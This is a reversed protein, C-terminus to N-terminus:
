TDEVSASVMSMFLDANWVHLGDENSGLETSFYVGVIDLEPDVWLLVGGSGSHLFTSKSPLTEGYVRGKYVHNVSWGLGWSAEPFVKTLLKARLGPIQNRTMASVSAKSLLRRDGYTGRNLFMQGFVAADMATSFAGGSPSPREQMDPDNVEAYPGDEAHMVVRQRVDEPLSYFADKMGLPDFIRKRAFDDLSEGNIRRIIESLLHIGFSSYMMEKGPELALPVEMGIHLWRHITPHATDERPPLNLELKEKEKIYGFLAEDGDLGASHTMLQHVLVNEKHDGQFEPIYEQVPRNMGLLGEEVLTMAAAVTLVKSISALPFITDLALSGQLDDKSRRGFAKHLFIVGKRAALLVLASHTGDDIWQQGRESILKIASSSVGAQKPTGDRLKM